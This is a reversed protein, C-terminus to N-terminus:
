TEDRPACPLRRRDCLISATVFAAVSPTGPRMPGLDEPVDHHLFWNFYALLSVVFAVGAYGVPWGRRMAVASLLLVITALLWTIWSYWITWWWDPPKAMFTPAIEDLLGPHDGFMLVFM